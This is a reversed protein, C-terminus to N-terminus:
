AARQVQALECAKVLRRLDMTADEVSSSAVMMKMAKEALEAIGAFGLAPATGKVEASKAWCQKYDNRQVGDDLVKALDHLDNVYDDVLVANPHDSALTCMYSLAANGVEGLKLFEAIARCLMSADMPKAIYAQASVQNARIPTASVTDATVIIIPTKVSRDRLEKIIAGPELDSLNYETIILDFGDTARAIGAAGSDATTISLNSSRLYHRLLRRDAASEDIYLLTGTLEAPDVRELSFSDSFPGAKMLMKIDISQEFNIGLEHIMGRLHTCRVIKGRVLITKEDVRPLLVTCATGTHVYASHLV